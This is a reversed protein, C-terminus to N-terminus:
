AKAKGSRGTRIPRIMRPTGRDHKYMSVKGLPYIRQAKLEELKSDTKIGM